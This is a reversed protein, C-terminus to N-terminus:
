GRRLEAEWSAVTVIKVPPRTAWNFGVEMHCGTLDNQSNKLWERTLCWKQQSENIKRITTHLVARIAKLETHAANRLASQPTATKGGHRVFETASLAAVNLVLGLIILPIATAATGQLGIAQCMQRLMLRLDEFLANM